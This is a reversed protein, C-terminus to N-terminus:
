VWAHAVVQDADEVVRTSCQVVAGDDDRFLAEDGAGYCYHRQGHLICVCVFACCVPLTTRPLWMAEGLMIQGARGAGWWRCADGLVEFGVQMGGIM